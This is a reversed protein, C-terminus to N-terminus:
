GDDRKLHSLIKNFVYTECEANGKEQITPSTSHGAEMPKSSSPTRTVRNSSVTDIFDRQKMVLTNNTNVNLIRFPEAARHSLKDQKKFSDNTDYYVSEVSHLKRACRVRMDSDKKYM